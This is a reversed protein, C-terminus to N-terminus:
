WFKINNYIYKFISKNNNNESYIIKNKKIKNELNLDNKNIIVYDKTLYTQEYYDLTIYNPLSKGM